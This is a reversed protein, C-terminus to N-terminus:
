CRSRPIPRLAKGLSGNVPKTALAILRWIGLSCSRAADKPLFIYNNAVWDYLNRTGRLKDSFGRFSQPVCIRDATLIPNGLNSKGQCHAHSQVAGKVSKSVDLAVQPGRSARWESRFSSAVSVRSHHLTLYATQESSLHIGKLWPKM